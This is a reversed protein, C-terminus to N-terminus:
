DTPTYHAGHRSGKWLQYVNLPGCYLTYRFTYWNERSKAPYGRVVVSVFFGALSTGHPSEPSRRIVRSDDEFSKPPAPPLQVRTRFRYLKSFFITIYIKSEPAHMKLANQQGSWTWADINLPWKFSQVRTAIM